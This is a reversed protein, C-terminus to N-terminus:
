MAVLHIAQFQDTNYHIKWVIYNYTIDASLQIFLTMTIEWPIIGVM